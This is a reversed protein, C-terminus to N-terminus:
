ATGGGVAREAMELLNQIHDEGESGHRKSTRAARCMLMAAEHWGMAKVDMRPAVRARFVDKARAAGAARGESLARASLCAMFAGADLEPPGMGGFEWDIVGPGGGCDIVNRDHFTGHALGRTENQPLERKLRAAFDTAWAGVDPHARRLRDVWKSARRLMWAADRPPGLDVPLKAALELWDAALEAAREGQGLRLLDSVTPGELWEIVLLRLERKWAVVRPVRAGSGATLGAAAFTESLAVEDEPSKQYAKVALRRGPARLELTIRRAQKYARVELEIPGAGLDLEPLVHRLGSARIAVLGPLEPDEPLASEIATPPPVARPVRVGIARAPAVSPSREAVALLAGANALRDGTDDLAMSALRVLAVRQFWALIQPDLTEGLVAFFADRARTAEGARPASELGIRAVSALFLGADLELPGQAFHSWSILGVRGDVDLVHECHTSAHLLQTGLEKPRSEELLQAQAEAAAGLAASAMGLTVVWKSMRQLMRAPGLPDGLRIPLMMARKLWSAALAGARGGNGRRVLECADRGEIWDCAVIGLRRECAAIHPVRPAAADALEAALAEHLEVEPAPDRAHIKVALHRRASKVELTVLKGPTHGRLTVELPGEGLDLDPLAGGVGRARIVALGSLAPDSPLALGEAPGVIM